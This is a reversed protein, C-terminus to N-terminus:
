QHPFVITGGERPRPGAMRHTRRRSLHFIHGNAVQVVVAVQVYHRSSPQILPNGAVVVLHRDPLVVSAGECASPVRAVHVRYGVRHMCNSNPIQVVVTPQVNDSADVVGGRHSGGTIWGRGLIPIGVIFKAGILVVGGGEGPCPGLCIYPTVRLGGCEVGTAVMPIPSCRNEGDSQCIQIVIAVQVNDRTFMKLSIMLYFDPLVVSSREITLGLFLM